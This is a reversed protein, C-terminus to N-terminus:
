SLSSDAAVHKLGRMIKDASDGVAVAPIVPEIAPFKHVAIVKLPRSMSEPHLTVLYNDGARENLLSDRCVMICKLSAM